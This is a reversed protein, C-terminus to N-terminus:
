RQGFPMNQFYTIQRNMGIVLIREVMLQDGLGDGLIHDKQGEIPM